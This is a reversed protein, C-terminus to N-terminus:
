GARRLPSADQDGAACALTRWKGPTMGAVKRFARVFSSPESYGLSLAIESVPLDTSRLKEAAVQVIAHGSLDRLSIGSAALQRALSRVSTGRAQALESMQPVRGRERLSALVLATIEGELDGGQQHAAGERGGIERLLDQWTSARYGPNALRLATTELRVFTREAGRRISAPVLGNVAQLLLPDAHVAEVYPSSKLGDGSPGFRAYSDAIRLVFLTTIVEVFGRFQGLTPDASIFIDCWAGDDALQLHLQPNTRNIIGVVAELAAGLDPASFVITEHPVYPWDLFKRILAEEGHLEILNGIMRLDDAVSIDETSYTEATLGTGRWLDEPWGFSAAWYRTLGVPVPASALDPRLAELREISETLRNMLGKGRLPCSLAAIASFTLRNAPLTM